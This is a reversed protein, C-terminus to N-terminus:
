MIIAMLIFTLYIFLNVLFDGTLNILISINQSHWVYLMEVHVLKHHMSASHVSYEVSILLAAGMKM